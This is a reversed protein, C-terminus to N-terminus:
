GPLGCGTAAPLALQFEPLKRVQEQFPHFCRWIEKALLNAMAKTAQNDAHLQLLLEPETRGTHLARWQAAPLTRRCLWWNDSKGQLKASMDRSLEPSSCERGPGAKTWGISACDGWLEVVCRYSHAFHSLHGIGFTSESGPQMMAVWTRDIDGLEKLLRDNLVDIVHQLFEKRIEVTKVEVNRVLTLASQLHQPDDLLKLIDTNIADMPLESLSTSLHRCLRIYQGVDARLSHATDPVARLAQELVRSLDDYSMRIVSQGARATSGDRGDPTLFVLLRQGPGAQARLWDGYRALQEEQEGAGVKNEVAILTGDRLEAVIDIRGWQDAVRETVVHAGHSSLPEHCHPQLWQLWADLFTTGQGHRQMPNLLYALFASHVNEDLTVGFFQFINHHASTQRQQEQFSCLLPHQLLARVATINTM